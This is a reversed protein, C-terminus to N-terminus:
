RGLTRDYTDVFARAKEAVEAPTAGPRYLAGGIGFGDAGAEAWTGIDGAGIGGVAFVPCEAPLVDRLAKLGDTGLKFAPFIKLGDAGAALAGFCETATFVGPFSQMRLAKTRSIVAPDFNPSVVLRGGAGHVATVEGPDIVTGAGVLARDGLEQALASISALPDPSNLPVEIRDIGAEILAAGIELAEDPRMGRLIAIIPRSM